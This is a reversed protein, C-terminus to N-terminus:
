SPRGARRRMRLVVLVGLGALGAAGTGVAVAAVSGPVGGATASFRLRQTSRAATLLSQPPTAPSEATLMTRYSENLDTLATVTVDVEVVPAPCDFTLRAGEALLAALEELRGRCPRGQQAVKVHDLLYDRVAPSRRIKQEGTLETSVAQTAPDELAGVSLGLAVWDDEAALWSLTVRSGDVSIRASSPPGFPHAVGATGSIMPAGAAAM